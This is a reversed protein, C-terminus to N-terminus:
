DASKAPAKGAGGPSPKSVYDAFEVTANWSDKDGTSPRRDRSLSVSEVQITPKSDKVDGLYQLIARLKAPKLTVTQEQKQIGGMDTLRAAPFNQQQLERRGMSEFAIDRIGKTSAQSENLKAQARLNWLEPSGLLKELEVTKKKLAEVTASKAPNLFVVLVLTGLAFFLATMAPTLVFIQFREQSRDAADRSADNAM